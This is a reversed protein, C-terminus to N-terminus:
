TFCADATGIRQLMVPVTCCSSSTEVVGQAGRQTQTEPGTFLLSCLLVIGTLVAACLPQYLEYLQLCLLRNKVCQVSCIMSLWHFCVGGFLMKTRYSFIEMAGIRIFSVQLFLYMHIYKKKKKWLFVMLTTLTLTTEGGFESFPSLSRM